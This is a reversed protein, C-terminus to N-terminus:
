CVRGKGVRFRTWWHLHTKAEKLYNDFINYVNHFESRPIHKLLYYEDGSSEVFSGLTNDWYEGEKNKNVFNLTGWNDSTVCVVMAIEDENYKMAFHMANSHCKNQNLYAGGKVGIKEKNNKVWIAFEKRGQKEKNKM